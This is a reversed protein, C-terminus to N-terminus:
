TTAQVADPRLDGRRVRHSKRRPIADIWEDAEGRDPEHELWESQERGLLSDRGRQGHARREEGGCDRQRPSKERGIPVRQMADSAREDGGSGHHPQDGEELPLPDHQQRQQHHEDQQAGLAEECCADCQGQQENFRLHHPEGHRHQKGRSLPTDETPEREASGPPKDRAEGEHPRSLKCAPGPEQELGM